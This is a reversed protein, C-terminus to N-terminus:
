EVFLYPALKLYLEENILDSKKIDPVSNYKGHQERYNVISNALAFKIYPHKKLEKVSSSNINIKKIGAAELIIQSCLLDYLSSDLGYVEKLQQKDIFGGLRERYKLIRSAFGPGIGKLSVLGSSDITNIELLLLPVAEKRKYNIIRKEEKITIFPELRSYDAQSLGYIKQLDEKNFFKGGGAEYKKITNIQKPKLGLRQWTEVSLNNPDFSFLVPDPKIEPSTDLPKLITDRKSISREFAIIEKNFATLNVVKDKAFYDTVFLLLLLLLILSILILIGNREGKSFSLYEKILRNM